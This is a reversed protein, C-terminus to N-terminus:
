ALVSPYLYYSLNPSTSSDLTVSGGCAGPSERRAISLEPPRFVRRQTYRRKSERASSMCLRVLAPPVPRTQINEHARDSPM